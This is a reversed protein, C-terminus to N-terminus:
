RLMSESTPFLKMLGWPNDIYRQPLIENVQLYQRIEAIFANFEEQKELPTEAHNIRELHPKANFTNELKDLENTIWKTHPYFEKNLLFIARLLAETGRYLFINASTENGRKASYAADYWGHDNAILWQSMLEEVFIPHPYFTVRKRLVSTADMPDWIPVAHTIEFLVYPDWEKWFEKMRNQLVLDFKWGTNLGDSMRVEKFMRHRAKIRRYEELESEKPKDKICVDIEIDSLGDSYGYAVSGSLAVLSTELHGRKILWPRVVDEFYSHAVSTLKERTSKLVSSEKTGIDNIWM